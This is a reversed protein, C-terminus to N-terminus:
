DVVIKTTALIKGDGKLEAFYMGSAFDAIEMKTVNPHVEVVTLRQGLYNFIEVTVNAYSTFVEAPIVFQGVESIPNPTVYFEFTDKVFDDAGLIDSVNLVVSTALCIVEFEYVTGGFSDAYIVEPFNCIPIGNTATLIQFQDGINLDSELEVLINGDLSPSGTVAIVDNELGDIGINIHLSGGPSLDFNNTINLTAIEGNVDEPIVIGTNVFNATIDLTGGGVINGENSFTSNGALMLFTEDEPIMITGTNNIEHILYFNGIPNVGDPSKKLVGANNLVSNTSQQLFGGVSAIDIIGSSSNNITTNLLQIQNSQSVTFNASNNITVGDLVKSTNGIILFNSSNELTCGGSITGFNWSFTANNDVTISGTVILDDELTLSAGNHVTVFASLATGGNIIVNSSGTSILTNSGANPVNNVNWNAPNFWNNDGGNGNWIHTQALSLFPFFLLLVLALRNIKKM